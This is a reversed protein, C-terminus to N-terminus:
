LYYPFYKQFNKIEMFFSIIFSIFHIIFYGFSNIFRFYHNKDKPILYFNIFTLIHNIFIFIFHLYM